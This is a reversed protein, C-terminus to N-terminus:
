QETGILAMEGHNTFFGTLQQAPRFGKQLAVCDLGDDGTRGTQTKGLAGIHVKYLLDKGGRFGHFLEDRVRVSDNLQAALVGLDNEELTRQFFPHIAGTGAAGTSEDVLHGGKYTNSGVFQVLQAQAILLDVGNGGAAANECFGVDLGNQILACSFLINGGGNELGNHILGHGTQRLATVDGALHYKQAAGEVEQLTQSVPELFSQLQVIFVGNKRFVTVAEGGDARSQTGLAILVAQVLVDIITQYLGHLIPAISLGHRGEKVCLFFVIFKEGPM